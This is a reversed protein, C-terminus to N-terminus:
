QLGAAQGNLAQNALSSLQAMAQARAQFKIANMINIDPNCLTGSELAKSFASGDRKHRPVKGKCVKESNFDKCKLKAVGREYKYKTCIKM